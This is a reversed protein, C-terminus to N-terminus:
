ATAGFNFVIRDATTNNGAHLEPPPTPLGRSPATAGTWPVTAGHPDRIQAFNIIRAPPPGFTAQEVTVPRADQNAAWAWVHRAGFWDCTIFLNDCEIVTAWEGTQTYLTHMERRAVRATRHVTLQYTAPKRGHRATTAAHANIATELATTTTM